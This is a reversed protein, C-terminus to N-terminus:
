AFFGHIFWNNTKDGTYHGLRFLWYRCGDEDEVYYYDRHEGDQIWWEQEIREPGDAKTIRHLVGKYRFMMPPYDPIPATVEVYEPRPLIHIPRSREQKWTTDLPALLPSAPKFSREPWYHEAPLYRQIHQAGFKLSLRDLLQSIDKHYLGKSEAWLKEQTSSVAETKCAHLIFLEIGLAPEFTPLRLQFLKFLHAANSSAQNTSIEMQVVKGDVRYGKLVAHRLGLQEQKLKSCITGLLTEVAIEIGKVGAVPEICPLREQWPEIPIVPTIIEEEDGLAFDIAIVLSKGFRRFLVKRPMAIFDRIRRLGLKNLLIVIEIDIRLAAAPLNLIANLHDGPAIVQENSYRSCAWAAGITDAIAAKVHYGFNKLQTCIVDLYQQEGGWLHACGTIDLIIGESKDVAAVPTFRICWEAIRKLLTDSLGPKDDMVAIGPYIARADAVAMGPVIGKAEAVANMSQIVMRGHDPAALVFAKSKLAPEKRSFWDTKLYRFWIAMFRKAM